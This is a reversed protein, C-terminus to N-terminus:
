DASRPTSKRAFKMNHHIRITQRHPEPDISVFRAPDVAEDQLTTEVLERLLLPSGSGLERVIARTSGDLRRGQVRELQARLQAVTHASGTSPPGPSAPRAATPEQGVAEHVHQATLQVIAGM